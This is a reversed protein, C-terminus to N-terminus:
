LQLVDLRDGLCWGIMRSAMASLKVVGWTSIVVSASMRWTRSPEDPLLV